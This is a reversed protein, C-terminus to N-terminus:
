NMAALIELARDNADNLLAMLYNHNHFGSSEDSEAYALNHQAEELKSLLTPDTSGNLVTAAAEVNAAVTADLTSFSSQFNDIIGQATTADFSPHCSSQGCSVTDGGTGEPVFISFGHGHFMSSNSGDVDSVYMHCDKCGASPMLQQSAVGIGGEGTRIDYSLHDTGAFRLSGHCQGCLEDADTMAEYEMTASNFYSPTDPQHPDHCAVCSVDPWEATNRPSTGETFVGGSTTFFYALAEDERMGGNALVATPAHCAVCNEPDAGTVTEHPTEGAREAALEDAVDQQTIAHRSSRWADYTRHDTEAFRLSGHCQGCLASSGDMPTYHATRSDFISLIPPDDPHDQSVDHCVACDVHSWEGSHLPETQATFVGNDTTFFYELADTETMSGNAQVARPGHCAICNEPDSGHLVEDPTEGTREAALEEAVDSQTDAHRSAQWVAIQSSHCQSCDASDIGPNPPCEPCNNDNSCGAMMLIFAFTVMLAV